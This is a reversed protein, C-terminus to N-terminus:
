KHNRENKRDKTRSKPKDRAEFLRALKGLRLEWFYRYIEIWDAAQQLPEPNLSCHRERGRKERQLLGASELVNLHKTIAPLSMDFPKALDTVLADGHILRQMIARRTPDALARFVRDLQEDNYKVMQNFIIVFLVQTM